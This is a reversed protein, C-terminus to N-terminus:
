IKIWENQTTQQQLTESLIQRRAIRIELETTEEIFAADLTVIKLSCECSTRKRSRLRPTTANWIILLKGGKHFCM